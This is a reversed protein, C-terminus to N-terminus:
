LYGYVKQTDSELNITNTDDYAPYTFLNLGTKKAKLINKINTEVEKTIEKV